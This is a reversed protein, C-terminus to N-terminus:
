RVFPRKGLLSTFISADIVGKKARANQLEGVRGRSRGNWAGPRQRPSERRVPHSGKHRTGAHHGWDSSRWCARVAEKALTRPAAKRGEGSRRLSQRFRRPRANGRTGLSPKSKRKPCTRILVHRRDGAKSDIGSRAPATGGDCFKFNGLPFNHRWKFLLDQGVICQPLPDPYFGTLAQKQSPVGRESARGLRIVCPARSPWVIECGAWNLPRQAVFCTLGWHPDRNLPVGTALM